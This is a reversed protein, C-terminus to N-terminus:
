LVFKILIHDSCLPDKFM